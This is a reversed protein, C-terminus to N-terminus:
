ILKNNPLNTIRKIAYIDPDSQFLKCEQKANFLSLKTITGWFGSNKQYGKANTAIVIHLKKLMKQYQEKTLKPNRAIITTSTLIQLFIPDDAPLNFL